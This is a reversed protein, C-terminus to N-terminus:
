KNLKIDQLVSQVDPAVSDDERFFGNETYLKSEVKDIIQEKQKLLSSKVFAVLYKILIPYHNKGTDGIFSNVSRTQSDVIEKIQEKTTM